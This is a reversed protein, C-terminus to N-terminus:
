GLAPFTEGRLFPWWVQGEGVSLTQFGTGLEWFFPLFVVVFSSIKPFQICCLNQLEISGQVIFGMLRRFTLAGKGRAESRFQELFTLPEALCSLIRWESGRFFGAPTQQIYWHLSTYPTYLAYLTHLVYFRNKPTQYRDPKSGAVLLSRICRMSKWHLTCTRWRRTRWNRSFVLMWSTMNCDMGGAWCSSKSTQTWLISLHYKLLGCQKLGELGRLATMDFRIALYSILSYSKISQHSMEHGKDGIKSSIKSKSPKERKWQEWEVNPQTIVTLSFVHRTWVNGKHQYLQRGSWVSRGGRWTFVRGFSTFSWAPTWMALFWFLSWSWHGLRDPLRFLTNFSQTSIDVFDDRHALASSWKEMRWRWQRKGKVWGLVKSEVPLRDLGWGRRSLNPLHSLVFSHLELLVWKPSKCFNPNQFGLSAFVVLLVLGCWLLAM